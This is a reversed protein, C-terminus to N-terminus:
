PKQRQKLESEIRKGDATYKVDKTPLNEVIAMLRKASGNGGMKQYPEFLYDNLNEYEDTSIWGQDIYKECLYTIRDHGLGLLMKNSNNKKHYRTSIYAWFGSSALLTAIVTILLEVWHSM